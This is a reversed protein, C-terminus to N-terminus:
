KLVEKTKEKVIKYVWENGMATYHGDGFIYYPRVNMQGQFTMEKTYENLDVFDINNEKLYIKLTSLYSYYNHFKGKQSCYATELDIPALFLVLKIKREETLKVMKNIQDLMGQPIDFNVPTDSCEDAPYIPAAFPDRKEPRIFDEKLSYPTYPFYADSCRDAPITANMCDQTKKIKQIPWIFTENFRYILNEQTMKLALFLYSYKALQFQIEFLTMALKSNKKIYFTVEDINDGNSPFYYLVKANLKPLFKELKLNIHSPGYADVGLNLSQYSIGKSDTYGNLKNCFTENDSVGFGMTVSDGICIIQPLSNDVPPSGRFGYENTTFDMEFFKQFHKVHVNVNTELDILYNPEVKHYTKQIRYFELASPRVIWLLGESVILLLLINLIFKILM